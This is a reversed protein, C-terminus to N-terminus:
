ARRKGDPKGGHNIIFVDKSILQGYGGCPINHYLKKILFIKNTFIEWFEKQTQNLSEIPIKKMEELPIFNLDIYIPKRSIWWSKPPNKWRFTIIGNKKKKRFRIGNCLKHGNLIWVMRKYYNEREVIDKSSLPSNQLEIILRDKTRIDARHKGMIFEQCEKPFHKKWNLHWSSEPEGFSDCEFNSKHAWHWINILGCKSIVEQNCLPCNSKSKPTAKIRENNKIAWIM